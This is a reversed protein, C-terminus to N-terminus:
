SNYFICDNDYWTESLMVVDFYVGTNILFREVEDVKNRISLVKLHFFSLNKNKRINHLHKLETM